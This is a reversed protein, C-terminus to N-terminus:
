PTQAMVLADKHLQKLASAAQTGDLKGTEHNEMVAMFCRVVTRCEPLTLYDAPKPLATKASM